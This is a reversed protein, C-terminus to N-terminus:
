LATRASFTLFAPTAPRVSEPEGRARHLGTLIDSPWSASGIMRAAVPCGGPTPNEDLCPGMAHSPLPM